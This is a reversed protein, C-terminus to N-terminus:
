CGKKSENKPNGTDPIKTGHIRYYFQDFGKKIGDWQHRIVLEKPFLGSGLAVGTAGSALFDECNDLTIGGTPLLKLFQMPALVEKIYGAGLSSAPFVKVMTAGMEWAKYIETPTYAGPFVPIREQVCHKIVEKNLVPTVIFQAGASIAIELEELNLVTGAGINLKTKYKESLTSLTDAAGESNMTIELTTLGAELYLGAIINMADPPFNRMIGIVPVKEFLDFSFPSNM